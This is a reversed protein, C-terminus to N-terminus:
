APRTGPLPTRSAADLAFLMASARSEVHLKAFINEVHKYVTRVSLGLITAIERNAKGQCIWGLVENERATLIPLSVATPASSTFTFLLSANGETDETAFRVALVGHPRNV